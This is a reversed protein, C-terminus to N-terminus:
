DALFAVNAGGKHDCFAKTNFWEGVEATRNLHAVSLTVGPIRNPRDNGSIGDLNYDSGSTVTFPIGSHVSMIPSVCGNLVGRLIRSEGNYDNFLWLVCHNERL